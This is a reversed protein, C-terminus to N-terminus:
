GYISFNFQPSKSNLLAQKENGSVPQSPKKRTAPDGSNSSSSSLTVYDETATNTQASIKGSANDQAPESGYPRQHPQKPQIAAPSLNTDNITSQM